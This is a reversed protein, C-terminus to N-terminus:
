YKKRQWLHERYPFVHLFLMLLPTNGVCSLLGPCPTFQAKLVSAVPVVLPVRAKLNSKKSFFLLFLFYTLGKFYNLRATWHKILSLNIQNSLNCSKCIASFLVLLIQIRGSVQVWCPYLFKPKPEAKRDLSDLFFQFEEYTEHMKLM